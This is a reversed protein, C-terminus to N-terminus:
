RVMMIMMINSLGAKASVVFHVMQKCRIRFAFRFTWAISVTMDIICEDCIQWQRHDRSDRKDRCFEIMGVIEIIEILVM